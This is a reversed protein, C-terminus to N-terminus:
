LSFKNVYLPSTRISYRDNNKSPGYKNKPDIEYPIPVVTWFADWKECHVYVNWDNCVYFTNLHSETELPEPSYFRAPCAAGGNVWYPIWLSSNFARVYQAYLILVESDLLNVM